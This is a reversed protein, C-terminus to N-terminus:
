REHLEETPAQMEVAWWSPFLQSKQVSDCGVGWVRVAEGLVGVSVGLSLASEKFYWSAPQGTENRKSAAFYCYSHAVVQCWVGPQSCVGSGRGPLTIWSAVFRCQQRQGVRGWLKLSCITSMLDGFGWSEVMVVDTVFAVGVLLLPLHLMFEEFAIWKGLVLSCVFSTHVAFKELNLLSSM